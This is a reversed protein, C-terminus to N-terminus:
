SHSEQSGRVAALTNGLEEVTAEQGKLFDVADMLAAAKTNGNARHRNKPMASILEEM